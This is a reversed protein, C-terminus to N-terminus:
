RRDSIYKSIIEEIQEKYRSHWYQHHTPCLPILNEPSNNNKNEDLHHVEVINSEKCVVCEKKHYLFCTSRYSDDNWNGNNKGSRFFTNSCSHSCTTKEKKGWLRAEFSTSCVPCIKTILPYKRKSHNRDFHKIDLENEKIIKKIKRIGVGNTPLGVLRCFDSLSYCKKIEESLNMVYINYIDDKRDKYHRTSLVRIQM